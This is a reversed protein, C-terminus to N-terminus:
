VGQWQTLWQGNDSILMVLETSFQNYGKIAEKGGFRRAEGVVFEAIVRWILL